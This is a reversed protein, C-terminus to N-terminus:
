IKIKLIHHAKGPPELLLSDMQWHLLCLNSAQDPLIGCAVSCGLGHAAFISRTSQLGPAVAASVVHQLQKLRLAPSGPSWLLFLWRLSFGCSSFGACGPLRLLALVLCIFNNKKIYYFHATACTVCGQSHFICLDLGPEAVLWSPM